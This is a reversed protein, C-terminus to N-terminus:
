PPAHTEPLQPEPQCEGRATLFLPNHLYSSALRKRQLSLFCFWLIAQTCEYAVVVGSM